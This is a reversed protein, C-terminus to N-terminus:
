KTNTIHSEAKLITMSRLYMVSCLKCCANLGVHLSDLPGEQNKWACLLILSRGPQKLHLYNQSTQGATKISMPGLQLDTM